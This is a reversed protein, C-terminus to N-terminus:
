HDSDVLTQCLFNLDAEIEDFRQSSFDFVSKYKRWDGCASELDTFNKRLICFHFKYRWFRLSKRYIQKCYICNKCKRAKGTEM